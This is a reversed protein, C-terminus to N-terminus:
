KLLFDCVDSLNDVRKYHKFEDVKKLPKTTDYEFIDNEFSYKFRILSTSLNLKMREQDIKKLLAVLIDVDHIQKNSNMKSLPVLYFESFELKNKSACKIIEKEFVTVEDENCTIVKFNKTSSYKGFSIHLYEQNIGNIILSDNIIYDQANLNSSIFFLFINCYFFNARIRTDM